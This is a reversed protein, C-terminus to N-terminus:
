DDKRKCCLFLRGESVSIAQDQWSIDEFGADRLLQELRQPQHAYEIHEERSRRWLKNERSFLDM